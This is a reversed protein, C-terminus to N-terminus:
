GIGAATTALLAAESRSTAALASPHNRNSVDPFRALVARANARQLTLALHGYIYETAASETTGTRTAKLKALQKFFTQAELGWGGLTEVVIPKLILGHHACRDATDRDQRKHEEYAAASALQVCSSELLADCQLPCTVAFDMAYPVGDGWGRVVIDGPRRNPDSALLHAAEKEADVGLSHLMFFVVDRLLNHRVTRHGGAACTVAHTVRSDLVRDCKPCWTDSPLVRAGIRLAAAASFEGSTLRRRLAKTAPTTLWAGAHPASAALLRAQDCATGRQHLEEFIAKDIRQSLSKQDRREEPNNSSIQMGAIVSSNFLTEAATESTSHVEFNSDIQVCLEAAGMSSALYAAAAHKAASRLGMGAM